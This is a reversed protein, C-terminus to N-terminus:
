LLVELLKIAKKMDIGKGLVPSFLDGEKLRKLANEITFQRPDLGKKVENWHLPMSVPAGPHPRVSYPAALTAKPRNQLFDIYIKGKREITYRDISTFQPVMKHVKTAIKRGFEQCEDYTYKAQLPIYIHLGSAGSTKCYGSIKIADLVEKTAIATEIVQEFTNTETPDIDISCWTPHDPKEITSNWPHMEIAGLNAMWLLDAEGKVVLYNKDKGDSTHYPFQKIWSPATKTVDKQYFSKGLIGHPYRNLSQPRNELYPIIYPAISYYYNILDRKTFGDEPWYVKSLNNFRLAHGEINKTQTEESPNLLTKRTKEVPKIKITTSVKSAAIPKEAHVNKASKDERIGEFAAHRMVGDSTMETYSVECVIKPTLWTVKAHPPNPRFRSPVNVDPETSFPCKKTILSKFQAMLQKQMNQNFGTGIKGIYQFKGKEYVGVLLASFMKPSDENQTFGGVVVEHRRKAKIKLWDYGRVDPRYPSDVKKAMIGELGVEKASILLKKGPVDFTESKRILGESPILRDLVEKRESLPLDMLSYGNLWLVDFVYYFLEGDAESRWNQLSEFSPLGSEQVAVIEGDLVANLKMKQLAEVIPYYKTSFSKNNRSILDVRNKQCYALARYGDWKVEFFWKGKRPVDEALTALMPKIAKPFPSKKGRSMIQTHM